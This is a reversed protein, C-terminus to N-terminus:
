AGVVQLMARRTKIIEADLEAQAALLIPMLEAAEIPGTDTGRESEPDRVKALQAIAEALRAITNLDQIVTADAPVGRAGSMHQFPDIANAGFMFQLSALFVGDLNTNENRANRVTEKSCGIQEALEADSLSHQAQVNRIIAAVAARYSKTSPRMTRQLVNPRQTM